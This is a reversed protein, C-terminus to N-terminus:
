QASTKGSGARTLEGVIAEAKYVVRLAELMGRADVSV